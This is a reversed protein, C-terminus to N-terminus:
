VGTSINLPKFIENLYKIKYNIQNDYSLHQLQCGGCIDYYECKPKIRFDSKINYKKVDAICYRNKELIVDIEVDENPLANNVFIIKNNYTIGRGQNDM